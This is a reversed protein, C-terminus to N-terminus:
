NEEPTPTSPAHAEAAASITEHLTPEATVSQAARESPPKYDPASRAWVSDEPANEALRERLGEAIDSAAANEVAARLLNHRKTAGPYIHENTPDRDPRLTERDAFPLPTRPGDNGMYDGSQARANSLAREFQRLETLIADFREPPMLGMQVAAHAKRLMDPDNFVIDVGPHDLLLAEAPPPAGRRNLPPPLPTALDNLFPDNQHEAYVRAVLDRLRDRDAQTTM